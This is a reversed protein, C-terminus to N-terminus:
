DAQSDDGQWLFFENGDLDKFSTARTEGPDGSIPEVEVGKSRLDSVVSEIDESHLSIRPAPKNKPDPWCNQAMLGIRSSEDIELEAWGWDYQGVLRFGLTETYFKVAANLDTVYYITESQAANM